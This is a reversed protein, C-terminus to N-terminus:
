SANGPLGVASGGSSARASFKQMGLVYLSVSFDRRGLSWFFQMMGNQYQFENRLCYTVTAPPEISIAGQVSGTHSVKREPDSSRLCHSYFRKTTWPMKKWWDQSGTFSFISIPTTQVFSSSPFLTFYFLKLLSLVALVQVLKSEMVGTNPETDHAFNLPTVKQNNRYYSPFLCHRSEQSIIFDLEPNEKALREQM